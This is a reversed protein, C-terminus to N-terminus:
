PANLETRQLHISNEIASAVATVLRTGGVNQSHAPPATIHYGRPHFDGNQVLETEHPTKCKGHLNESLDTLQCLSLPGSPITAPHGCSRTLLSSTSM